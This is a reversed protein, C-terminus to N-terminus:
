QSMSIKTWFVNNEYHGIAISSPVRDLSLSVLRQRQFNVNFLLHYIFRCEQYYYDYM